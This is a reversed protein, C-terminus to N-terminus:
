TLTQTPSHTACFFSQVILASFCSIFPHQSMLTQHTMTSLAKDAIYLDTLVRMNIPPHVIFLFTYQLSTNERNTYSPLQSSSSM